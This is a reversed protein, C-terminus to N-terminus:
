IRIDSISETSRDEHDARFGMCLVFVEVSEPRSSRPKIVKASRFHRRCGEFFGPFDRGQFVKCFFAGGTNLVGLALDLAREALSISRLHDMDKVGSTRPAMDSLVVDFAPAIKRLDSIEVDFADTKLFIANAPLTLPSDLDVAVIRGREGIVQAAYKTWSGPSAGLDVVMQGSTLFGYKEQVEKLKYVSRAQYGEKKARRFYFDKIEKM